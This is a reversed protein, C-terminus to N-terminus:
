FTYSIKHHIINQIKAMSMKNELESHVARYQAEELPLVAIHSSSIALLASTFAFLQHAIRM